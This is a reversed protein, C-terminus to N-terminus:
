GGVRYHTVPVAACGRDRGERHPPCAHGLVWCRAIPQFRQGQQRRSQREEARLADLLGQTPMEGREDRLKEELAELEEQDEEIEGLLGSRVVDILGWMGGFSLEVQMFRMWPLTPRKSSKALLRRVRGRFRDLRATEANAKWAARTQGPGSSSLGYTNPQSFFRQETIICAPIDADAELVALELTQDLVHVALMRHGQVVARSMDAEVVNRRQRLADLMATLLRSCPGALAQMSPDNLVHRSLARCVNLATPLLSEFLYKDLKTISCHVSALSQLETALPICLMEWTDVNDNGGDGSGHAGEAGAGDSPELEAELSEETLYVDRMLTLLRAKLTVPLAAGNVFPQVLVPLPVLKSVLTGIKSNARALTALLSLLQEFYACLREEKRSLVSGITNLTPISGHLDQGAKTYTAVLYAVFHVGATHAPYLYAKDEEAGLLKEGIAEQMDRSPTGAPAVLTELLQVFAVTRCRPEQMFCTLLPDVNGEGVVHEEILEPQGDFIRHLVREAHIGYTCAEVFFAINRPHSLLEQNNRNDWCFFALFEFCSGFFEQVRESELAKKFTAGSLRQQVLNLVAKYASANRMMEQRGHQPEVVVDPQNWPLAGRRGGGRTAGPAAARATTTTTTAGPAAAAAAAATTTAATAATIAAPNNLFDSAPKDNVTVCEACMWQIDNTLNRAVTPLDDNDQQKLILMLEELHELTAEDRSDSIVVVNSLRALLCGKINFNRLLLNLAAVRLGDSPYVTLALLLHTAQKRTFGQYELFHHNDGTQKIIDIDLLSRTSQQQQLDAGGEDGQQQQQQQEQQQQRRKRGKRKNQECEKKYAHLLQTVIDDLHVDVCADLIRCLVTKARVVVDLAATPTLDDTDSPHSRMLLVVLRRTLQQRAEVDNYLGRNVMALCLRLVQETLVNAQVEAQKLEAIEPRKSDAGSYYGTTYSLLGKQSLYAEVWNVVEDVRLLRDAVARLKAHSKHNALDNWRRNSHDVEPLDDGDIYLNVLLTCFRAKIHAPLNSQLVGMIMPYPARRADRLEDQCNGELCLQAYLQLMSDFYELHDQDKLYEQLPMTVVRWQHFPKGRTPVRTSITMNGDSDITTVPLIDAAPADPALTLERIINQISPIASGDVSCLSALLGLYQELDSMTHAEHILSIYLNVSRKTVRNLLIHNNRVINDLTDAIHWHINDICSILRCQNVMDTLYADAMVLGVHVNGHCLYSILRYIDRCLKNFRRCKPQALRTRWGKGWDACHAGEDQGDEIKDESCFQILAQISNRARKFLERATPNKLRVHDTWLVPRGGRRQTDELEVQWISSADHYDGPQNGAGIARLCVTNDHGLFDDEDGDGIQRAVVLFGNAEHHYLRVFDGGKLVHIFAEGSVNYPAFLRIRIGSTESPGCALLVKSQDLSSSSTLFTRNGDLILENQFVVQDNLLVPDGIARIKFRPLLRFHSAGASTADLAVSYVGGVARTQRTISRQTSRHIIRVVDGYKLSAGEPLDTVAKIQFICAQEFNPITTPATDAKTSTADATSSSSYTANTSDGQQQTAKQHEQQLKTPQFVSIEKSSLLDVSAVGGASQVFLSVFDGNSLTSRDVIDDAM